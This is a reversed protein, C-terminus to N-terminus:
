RQNRRYRLTFFYSIVSVTAAFGICSVPFVVAKLLPDEQSALIGAYLDSAKGTIADVLIEDTEGDSHLYDFGWALQFKSTNDFVPTKPVMRLYTDKWRIKGQDLYLSASARAEESSCLIISSLDVTPIRVYEYSLSIIRLTSIDVLMTIGSYHREVFVGQVPIAIQIEYFVEEPSFEIRQTGIYRSGSPITYNHGELFSLAISEATGSDFSAAYSSTNILNHDEMWGTSSSYEQYACVKGTIANVWVYATFVSPTDTTSLIFGWLHVRDNVPTLQGSFYLLSSLNFGLFDRCIQYAQEIDITNNPLTMNMVYPRTSILEWTGNFTCADFGDSVISSFATSEIPIGPLVIEDNALRSKPAAAVDIAILVTSAALIGAVIPILYSYTLRRRLTM